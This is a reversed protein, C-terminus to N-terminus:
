VTFVVKSDVYESVESSRETAASRRRNVVKCKKPTPDPAINPRCEQEEAAGSGARYRIRIAQSGGPYSVSAPSQHNGSLSPRDRIYCSCSPFGM